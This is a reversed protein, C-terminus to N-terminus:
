HWDLSQSIITFDNKTVSESPATMVISAVLNDHSTYDDVEFGNQKNEFLYGSTSNLRQYILPRELRFKINSDDSLRESVVTVTVSIQSQDSSYLNAVELFRGSLPSNLLRYRKPYAFDLYPGNYTVLQRNTSSTINPSGASNNIVGEAPRNLGSKLKLGILVLGILLILSLLIKKRRWVM